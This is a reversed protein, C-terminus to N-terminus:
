PRFVEVICDFWRDGAVGIGHEQVRKNESHVHIMGLRGGIDTVLAVHRPDGDFKVLAVDGPQMEAKSLAPGLNAVLMDRLGNKHPERGYGKLDAIPRGIVKLAAAVMGACDLGIAPNRGQHRFPVHMFSRCAAILAASEDATLPEGIARM